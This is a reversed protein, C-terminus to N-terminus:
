CYGQIKDNGVDVIVGDAEAQWAELYEGPMKLTEAMYQLFTDSYYFDIACDAFEDLATVLELPTIGPLDMLEIIEEWAAQESPEMSGPEKGDIEEGKGYAWWLNGQEKLKSILAPPCHTGPLLAHESRMRLDLELIETDGSREVLLRIPEVVVQASPNWRFIYPRQTISGRKMLAQHLVGGLTQEAPEATLLSAVAPGLVPDQYLLGKSELSAGLAEPSDFNLYRAVAQCGGAPLALVVPRYHVFLGITETM